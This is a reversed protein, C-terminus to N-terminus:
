EEILGHYRAYWYPLTYNICTRFEMGKDDGTSPLVNYATPDDSGIFLPKAVDEAGSDAIFRNIDNNIIRREHPTLPEYLQPELGLETPSMDWKLGPQWSNYLTWTIHDMPYDILEEIADEANYKSGTAAGYVFNYFANKEVKEDQWHHDLGMAFLSRLKPDGTYEMLLSIMLFDHNDDIHCIHGDPIRYQMLNMVYHRDSALMDYVKKYKENGTMYYGVTLFTLIQLTNTGKENIWKCDDNLLDPNWNAWTTPVGDTDVLRFNNDIIHDLIGSVVKRLQKKEKEDAALKYYNAYAFFHGVMEDSSTEGLWELENGDKDTVVHWEHRAGTKYEREDPYRVARATFGDIGTIETLKIMAGLSRKAKAKIEKDKTCAYQFCLDAVYLGTRLGDNDTNPIFGEDLSVVGEHDLARDLVFGDKRINYTETMQRLRNAKEELTLTINEIVSLGKDTAVCVSGDPSVAVAVANPSPIWRKYGYYDFKGDHHHVLGGEAAYYIDGNESVAMDNIKLAPLGDVDDPTLWYNKDDYVCVGKDTGVFIDGAPDTYLCSVNNSLLGSSEATIESWHWRKGVLAHIGNNRTGIYVRGNKYLTLCCGEGPVGMCIESEEGAHPYKYFVTQTLVWLTGNDDKVVDAVPSSFERVSIKKKGSFEYLKKGCGVFMHNDNDFYIKSICANKVGTEFSEAIGKSVSIKSIGKDTGVFLDGKKDFSMATINNSKLGNETTYFKRIKQSFEGVRCTMVQKNM